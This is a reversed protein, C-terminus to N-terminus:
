SHKSYGGQSELYVPNLVDRVSSHVKGHLDALRKIRAREKKFKQYYYVSNVTLYVLVVIIACIIGYFADNSLHSLISADASLSQPYPSASFTTRMPAYSLIVLPSASTFPSSTPAPAPSPSIVPTYTISPLSTVTYSYPASSPTMSPYPLQSM